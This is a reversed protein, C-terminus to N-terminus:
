SSIGFSWLMYVTPSPFRLIKISSVAWFGGQVSSLNPLHKVKRVYTTSVQDGGEDVLIFTYEMQLVSFNMHVNTCM